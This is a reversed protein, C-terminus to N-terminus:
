LSAQTWGRTSGKKGKVEEWEGDKVRVVLGDWGPELRGAWQRVKQGVDTGAVQEDAWWRRILDAAQADDPHGKRQGDKGQISLGLEEWMFHTVPHVVDVVYTILPDLRMAIEVAEVLNTHSSHRAIPWLADIVLIPLRPQSETSSAATHGNSYPASSSSISLSSLGNIPVPSQGRKPTDQPTPPVVVKGLADPVPSAHASYGTGNVQSVAKQGGSTDPRRRDLM